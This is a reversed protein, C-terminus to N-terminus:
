KVHAWTIGRRARQITAKSVGYIRSLKVAGNKRDKRIRRVAEESLKHNYADEGKHRGKDQPYLGKAWGDITNEALTGAKLHKPNICMKNDCTHMVCFGDPIGGVELTYVYRNMNYLRKNIRIRPYGSGSPRHSICIWCGKEDVTYRISRVPKTGGTSFSQQMVREKM